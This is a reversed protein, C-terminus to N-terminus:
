IFTLVLNAVFGILAWKGIANAKVPKEKKMVFYLILGVIPLFFSLVNLLLNPKDEVYITDNNVYDSGVRAGCESCFASDNPIQKGCNRCFM